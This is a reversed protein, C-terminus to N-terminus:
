FRKEFVLGKSLKGDVRQSLVLSLSKRNESPDGYRQSSRNVNIVGLGLTIGGVLLGAFGKNQDDRQDELFIAAISAAITAGGVFLGFGGTLGSEKHGLLMMGNLLCAAVDAYFLVGLADAWPTREEQLVDACVPDVTTCLFVALFIAAVCIRMMSFTTTRDM